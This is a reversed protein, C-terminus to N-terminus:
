DIPTAGCRLCFYHHRVVEYMPGSSSWDRIKAEDVAIGRKHGSIACWLKKLLNRV